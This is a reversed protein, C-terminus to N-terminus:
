WAPIYRTTGNDNIPIWKTPNGAAPSNTLTGAAAAAGNTLAVSTSLLTTQSLVLATSIALNGGSTGITPNTASDTIVVHNALGTGGVQLGCTAAATGSLYVNGTASSMFLSSGAGSTSITPNTASGTFRLYNTGGGYFEAALATGGIAVQFTGGGCQLLTNTSFAGGQIASFNGLYAYNAGNASLNIYSGGSAANNGNIILGGKASTAGLTATNDNNITLATATANDTIGRSTFTGNTVSVGTAGVQLKYAGKAQTFGGTYFQIANATGTSDTAIVLNGTKGSGSPASGFVYAENPGTVTYVADAYASSTFGLDAWGHADTSNDSYAILDASASTAAQTNYIYNQIYNNASSVALIIPNTTGALPTGVGATVTSFVGTSGGDTPDELLVDNITQTTINTGTITLSYRGDAAYFSFAGNADTTLPNALATSTSNTSYLSATVGGPYTKVLVSAGVVPTGTNNAVSNIYKQM